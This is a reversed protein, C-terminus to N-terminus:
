AEVPQAETDPKVRWEQLDWPRDLGLRPCYVIAQITIAAAEKKVALTLYVLRYVTTVARVVEVLEITKSKMDVNIEDIAFKAVRYAFDRGSPFSMAVPIFYHLGSHLWTPISVDVDFGGSNRVQSIYKLVTKRDYPNKEM